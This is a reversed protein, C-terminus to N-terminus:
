GQSRLRVHGADLREVEVNFGSELAELMPEVEGVKFYGSVRLDDLAPDAIEIDVDVYRSVDAVVESLREDSFTLMGQRWAFKRSADSASLEKRTIGQPGISATNMLGDDATVLAPARRPLGARTELTAAGTPASVVAVEVIGKTVTVDMRRDRVRVVFATGVARAVGDAGYVSFPRGPNAAVDFFAEGRLLFLDRAHRTYRVQLQSATNLQVSSGDELNIIRQEGVNTAYVETRAGTVREIVAERSAPDFGIIAVFIAVAAALAGFGVPRVAQWARRTRRAWHAARQPEAAPALQALMGMDAWLAALREAADQHLSSQAKWRAFGAQVEVDDHDADLRAVWDAAEAEIASLDVLRTVKGPVPREDAM